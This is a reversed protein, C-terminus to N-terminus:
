STKTAIMRIFNAKGKHYKGEDLNEEVEELLEFVFEDNFDQRIDELRYLMNIDPPGGSTNELQEPTFAELIFSGGPKLFGALQQHFQRRMTNQVHAYILAVADYCQEFRDLDTHSGHVYNITVNHQAAFGLANDIAKESFDYADVDWGKLAAYVANRGEGEAPLLIKGPKHADIYRKFLTNPQEGYAYGEERYRQEWFEYM